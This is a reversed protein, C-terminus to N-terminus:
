QRLAIKSGYMQIVQGHRAKALTLKTIALNNVRSSRTMQAYRTVLKRKKDRLRKYQRGEKLVTYGVRRVEMKTFVLSFLACIVIFVSLFPKLESYKKKSM